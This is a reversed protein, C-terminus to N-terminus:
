YHFFREALFRRLQDKTSAEVMKVAEEITYLKDNSPDAGCLEYIYMSDGRARLLHIAQTKLMRVDVLNYDILGLYEMPLICSCEDCGDRRCFFVNEAWNVPECLGICQYCCCQNYQLKLVHGEQRDPCYGQQEEVDRVLAAAKKKYYECEARALALDPQSM